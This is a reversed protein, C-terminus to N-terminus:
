EEMFTVQIDKSSSHGANAKEGFRKGPYFGFSVIVNNFNFIVHYYKNPSFKAEKKTHIDHINFGYYKKAPRTIFVLRHKIAQIYNTDFDSVNPALLQKVNWRQPYM